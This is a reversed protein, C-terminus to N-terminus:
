PAFSANAFDKNSRSYISRAFPEVLMTPTTTIKSESSPPINAAVTGVRRCHFDPVKDSWAKQRRQKKSGGSANLNAVSGYSSFFKKASGRIRSRVVRGLNKWSAVRRIPHSLSM